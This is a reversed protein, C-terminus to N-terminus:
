GRHDSVREGVRAVRQEDDVGITRHHGCAHHRDGGAVLIGTGSKIRSRSASRWSGATSIAQSREGSVPRSIGLWAVMERPSVLNHRFHRTGREQVKHRKVLFKRAPGYVHPM